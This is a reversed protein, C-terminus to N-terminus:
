FHSPKAGGDLLEALFGRAFDWIAEDHVLHHTLFGLPETCDARGERRDQLLTVTKAILAEPPVLGGGSRWAIPDVHTNIQTLGACRERKRPTFTSLAVYGQAALGSAVTANIRNWPPVFMALVDPGFLQRMRALAAETKAGARADPHGFEAKKAGSPALNEHAWGHVVPVMLRTAAAIEALEPTAAKPIVAIHVPLDLEASMNLLRDLAPTPATADDDRWWIQGTVRYSQACLPGTM